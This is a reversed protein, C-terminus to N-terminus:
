AIQHPRSKVTGIPMGTIECIGQDSYGHIDSLILVLRQKHPLIRIGLELRAGLEMREVFAQPSEHEDALQHALYAEDEGYPELVPEDVIQEWVMRREIRLADLCTNAVIRALRSKFSGYHFTALAGFAKLFSEVIAHSISM